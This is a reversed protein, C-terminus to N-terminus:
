DETIEETHKNEKHTLVPRNITDPYLLVNIEAGIFFIYICFYLWLMLVIVATLSGYLYSMNSFNAIYVSFIYSFIIWGVSSIVAGPFIEKIKTRRFTAVKLILMFILLLMLFSVVYRAIFTVLSIRKLGPLLNILIHFIEDGFVLLIMAIILVLVFAITYAMSIFRSIFYNRDQHIKYIEYIGFMVSLVGKSASWIAAIAAISILTESIHTFLENIIQILLPKITEPLYNNILAIITDKDISTYGIINLLLLIFPFISLIIFFSAQATYIGVRDVTLRVFFGYIKKILNWLGRLM